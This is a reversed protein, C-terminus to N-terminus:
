QCYDAANNSFINERFRNGSTVGQLGCTNGTFANEIFTNDVWGSGLQVAAASASIANERFVNDSAGGGTLLIGATSSGSITNEAIRNGPQGFLLIGVPNDTLTNEIVDNRTSIATSSPRIMIGRILNLWARNEKVTCDSSGNLFIGERTATLSNEKVQVRFSNAVMIGTEFNEVTGGHVVVDRRGAIRIGVGAGSGAITHGNLNVTVGDAGVTLGNGACVMDHDLTLDTLVTTGCLDRSAVARGNSLCMTFVVAILWFLYSRGRLTM